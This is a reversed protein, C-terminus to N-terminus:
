SEPVRQFVFHPGIRVPAAVRRATPASPRRVPPEPRLNRDNGADNGGREGFRRFAVVIVSEASQAAPCCSWAWDV